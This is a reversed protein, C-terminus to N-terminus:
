GKGSLKRLVLKLGGENFAMRAGRYKGTIWYDRKVHLPITGIPRQFDASHEGKEVFDLLPQAVKSWRFRERVQSVNRSYKELLQPNEIMSIIAEVCSEVDNEDVVAGLHYHEIIPAFNDGETAIIPLGAWLYDLLRTRFSFATELHVYHTSVGVNADLLFNAREDFPVWSENFFVHKDRIGLEESLLIAKDSMSYETFMPNPHAIGMFFLKVEPHTLSVQKVAHILTLPDFWNYIGGGWLLVFDNDSIGPVVGRIGPQDQVPDDESIGFPVVAILEGLSSDQVYNAPNVRGLASLYGLWFDRQKESACIIFDAYRLQQTVAAVTGRILETRAEIEESHTDELQELHLPDYLDAILLADSYKLWPYQALIFGQFLIVDAWDAHERLQRKTTQEIFINSEIPSFDGTTVVRVNHSVGLVTGLQVARIGPGAMSPAISDGTIVLVNHSVM